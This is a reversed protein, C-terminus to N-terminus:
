VPQRGLARGGLHDVQPRQPREVDFGDDRRDRLGITRETDLLTASSRRCRRAPRPMASTGSGYALFRSCAAIGVSCRISAAARCNSASEPGHRAGAHRGPSPPEPGM